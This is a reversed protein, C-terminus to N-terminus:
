ADEADVDQLRQAARKARLLRQLIDYLGVPLLAPVDTGGGPWVPLSLPAQPRQRALFFLHPLARLRCEAM